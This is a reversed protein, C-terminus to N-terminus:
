PDTDKEFLQLHAQFPNLSAHTINTGSQRYSIVRPAKTLRGFLTHGGDRVNCRGYACGNASGDAADRGVALATTFQKDKRVAPDIADFSGQEQYLKDKWYGFM